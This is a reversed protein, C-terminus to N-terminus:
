GAVLVPGTDGAVRPDDEAPSPRVFVVVGARYLGSLATLVQGTLRETLRDATGGADAALREIVDATPATGDCLRLLAATAPSVRLETQALNALRAFCILVPRDGGAGGGLCFREVVDREFRELRIEARVLPRLGAVTEATITRGGLADPAPPLAPGPRTEGARLAWLRARQYRLPGSLGGPDGREASRRELHGCFEDLTRLDHPAPATRGAEFEAVLDDLADGLLERTWPMRGAVWAALTEGSEAPTADRTVARTLLDEWADGFPTFGPFGAAVSLGNRGIRRATEPEDVLTTLRAALVDHDKPDPVLVVNHGDTLEDRYGQKAHIDGSLVLCTGTALVERPVVPGHIVVPFDRELFCTATCARILRPVQWHPLFPLLWTRDRLGHEDVAARVAGTRSRGAMLLLNFARGSERVRGLAAILDFTGKFEGPKGYMGITPLAPDYGSPPTGDPLSRALEDIEAAGLPEADPGFCPPVAYPPSMRIARRRVGMGLFRGTLAPKTIVTRAARFVEQYTAALEPIRMLRDLDSGAHQVLVPLGTWGGVLHGAVGYPELYSAVVVDCHFERVVQVALGALKSVFPNGQPIHDMRRGFREPRFVRVFGGGPFTPEYEAEGDGLRVRFSPEVEDANTVVYVRHGREALVRAAWYTQASVGGEIPPYKGILCVSLSGTGDVVDIAM